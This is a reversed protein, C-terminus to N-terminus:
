PKDKKWHGGPVTLALGKSPDSFDHHPICAFDFNIAQYPFVGFPSDLLQSSIKLCWCYFTSNLVKLLCSFFAFLPRNAEAWEHLYLYKEKDKWMGVFDISKRSQRSYSLHFACAMGRNEEITEPRHAEYLQQTTQDLKKMLDKPIINNVMHLITGGTPNVVKVNGFLYTIPYDMRYEGTDEKKIPPIISQMILSGFTPTSQIRELNSAISTVDVCDFTCLSNDSTALARDCLSNCIADRIQDSKQTSSCIPTTSTLDWKETASEKSVKYVKMFQKMCIFVPENERYLPHQQVAQIDYKGLFKRKRSPNSSTSSHRQMHGICFYNYDISVIRKTTSPLGKSVTTFTDSHDGKFVVGGGERREM